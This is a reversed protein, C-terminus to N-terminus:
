GKLGQFLKSLICLFAVLFTFLRCSYNENRCNYFMHILLVIWQAQM